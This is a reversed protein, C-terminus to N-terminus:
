LFKNTLYSLFCPLISFFFLLHVEHRFAYFTCVSFVFIYICVYLSVSNCFVLFWLLKNSLHFTALTWLDPPVPCHCTKWLRERTKTPVRDVLNQCLVQTAPQSTLHANFTLTLCQTFHRYLIAQNTKSLANGHQQFVHAYLEFISCHNDVYRSYKETSVCSVCKATSVGVFGFVTITSAKLGQLSRKVNTSFNYCACSGQWLRLTEKIFLKLANSVYLKLEWFVHLHEQM